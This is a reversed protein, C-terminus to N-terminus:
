DKKNFSALSAQPTKRSVSSSPRYANGFRAKMYNNIALSKAADMLKLRQQSNAEKWEKSNKDVLARADRSMQPGDVYAKETRAMTAQNPISKDVPDRRGYRLSYMEFKQAKEKKDTTNIIDEMIRIAEPPANAKIRNAEANMEAATATKLNINIKEDEQELRREKYRKDEDALRRKEIRENLAQLDKSYQQVGAKAGSLSGLATAGPQSAAEMIGLGAMILGMAQADSIGDKRMKEYALAPNEQIKEAVKNQEKTVNLGSDESRIDFEGSSAVGGAQNIDEQDPGFVAPNVVPKIAPRPLQVSSPPSPRAETPVMGAM